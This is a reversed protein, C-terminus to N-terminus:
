DLNYEKIIDNTLQAYSKGKDYLGKKTTPTESVGLIGLKTKAQRDKVLKEKAEDGAQKLLEDHMYDKFATTFNKIGNKQAHDLIKYELTQGAEDPTHLDVKPYKKKVTEIEATLARDEQQTVIAEKYQSLSKVEEKLSNLDNLLPNAQQAQTQAQQFQNQIFQFWQPNARAYDDVAKYRAEAEKTWQEKTKWGDLEKRLKGIENPASYGMTAWKLVQDEKAKIEKGGINLAYERVEQVTPTTAAQAKERDSSEIDNLLAEADETTELNQNENLNENENEVPM